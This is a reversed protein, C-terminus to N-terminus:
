QWQQAQGQFIKIIYEYFTNIKDLPFVDTDYWVGYDIIKLRIRTIVCIIKIGLFWQSNGIVIGCGVFETNVKSLIFV